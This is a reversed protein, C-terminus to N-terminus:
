RDEEIRQAIRFKLQAFSPPFHPHGLALLAAHMGFLFLDLDEEKLFVRSVGADLPAPGFVEVAYMVGVACHFGVGDGAIGQTRVVARVDSERWELEAVFEGSV